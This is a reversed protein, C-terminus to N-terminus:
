RKGYYVRQKQAMTLGHARKSGLFRTWSNGGKVNGSPEYDDYSHLSEQPHPYMPSYVMDNMGKGKKKRPYKKPKAKMLKAKNAKLIQLNAKAQNIHGQLERKAEARNANTYKIAGASFSDQYNGGRSRRRSMRRTMGGMSSSEPYMVQQNVYGGSVSRGYSQGYMPASAEGAALRRMYLNHILNDQQM